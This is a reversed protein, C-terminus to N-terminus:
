EGSPTEAEKALKNKKFRIGCMIGAFGVVGLVVFKFLYTLFENLLLM